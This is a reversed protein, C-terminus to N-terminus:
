TLKAGAAFQLSKGGEGYAVRRKPKKAPVDTQIPLRIGTLSHYLDAYSRAAREWSFDQKMANVQLKHWWIPQRYCDLARRVCALLETSNSNEFVFGTGPPRTGHEPSADVVSDALGGSNRVIPLTGYRMAYMPVLGCPEFRSPHVLIDAGALLRHAKGEDYGIHVAARGPYHEALQCFADQYTDDGEAVLAFQVGDDLLQPLSELVVDPMKQHALRSMYAFLPADPECELGLEAQVARKCAKKSGLSRVTYNRPLHPDIGPDWLGYDAGNLIGSFCDARERLLGDLGCGHEPNLIESAYTPSVTTIADSASIGAKLFSMRGYFELHNFDASSLGLSECQSLDFLGQYALNHITFVTGVKTQESLLLPILGAHWDNAHVIDPRWEGGTGNAIAAAVHSLLSFRLANDQWAEGHEDEYPGGPRDFLAPCDVLWVPVQTKPLRTELLRTQGHGLLDGFHAVETVNVARQLAQRYGPLLVRADVGLQRLASPLAASVDALGGTKTLPFIESTVYLARM